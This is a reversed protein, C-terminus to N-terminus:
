EFYPFMSRQRPDKWTRSISVSFWLEEECNCSPFPVWWNRCTPFIGSGSRFFCVTVSKSLIASHRVAAAHTCHHEQAFFLAEVSLEKSANALGDPYSVKLRSNVANRVICEVDSEASLDGTSTRGYPVIESLIEDVVCIWDPYM